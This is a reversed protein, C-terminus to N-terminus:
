LKYKQKLKDLSFAMKEMLRYNGSCKNRLDTNFCYKSYMKKKPIYFKGNRTRRYYEETISEAFKLATENNMKTIGDSLKMLAVKCERDKNNLAEKLLDKAKEKSQKKVKADLIIEIDKIIKEEEKSLAKNKLSSSDIIKFLTNELQVLNSDVMEIKRSLKKKAEYQYNITKQPSNFSFTSKNNRSERHEESMTHYTNYIRCDFPKKKQKKKYHTKQKEIKLMSIRKQPSLHNSMTHLPISVSARKKMPSFLLSGATQKEAVAFHQSRKLYMKKTEDIRNTLSNKNKLDLYALNGVFITSNIGISYPRRKRYIKKFWLLENAVIGDPGFFYQKMGKELRKLAPPKSSKILDFVSNKIKFMSKIEHKKLRFKSLFENKKKPLFYSVSKKNNELHNPQIVERPNEESLLPYFINQFERGTINEDIKKSIETKCSSDGESGLSQVKVHRIKM